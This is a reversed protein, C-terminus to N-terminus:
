DNEYEEVEKLKNYLFYFGRIFGQKYATLISNDIKSHYRNRAHEKAQEAVWEDMEKEEKSLEPINCEDLMKPLARELWKFARENGTNKIKGM